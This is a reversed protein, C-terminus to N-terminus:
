TQHKRLEFEGLALAGLVWLIAIMRENCPACRCLASGGYYLVHAADGLRGLRRYEDLAESAPLHCIRCDLDLRRPLELPGFCWVGMLPLETLGVILDNLRYTIM